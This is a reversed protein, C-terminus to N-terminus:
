TAAEDSEGAPEVEGARARALVADREVLPHLLAVADHESLARDQRRPRPLAADEREVAAQRFLRRVVEGLPRRRERGAGRRRDDGVAGRRERAVRDALHDPDRRRLALALENAASALPAATEPVAPVRPAGTGVASGGNAFGFM